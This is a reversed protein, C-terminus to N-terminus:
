RFINKISYWARRFFSPGQIGGLMVMEEPSLSQLKVTYSKEVGVKLISDYMSVYSIVITDNLSANITFQGDIDTSTSDNITINVINVGPLPFNDNEDIVTGTIIKTEIKTPQKQLPSSPSVETKLPEGQAIAKQSGLVFFSIVAASAAAWISSKQKPEVLDRDLQTVLFRGCLKKETKYSEAIQGDSAKTFDFVQKQCSGCFRGKESPSMNAWNEHCPNPISIKISTSM